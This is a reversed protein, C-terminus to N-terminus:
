YILVSMFQSYLGLQAPLKSLKAYAMSRPVVVEGVTISLGASLWM